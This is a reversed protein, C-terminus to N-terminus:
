RRPMNAVSVLRRLLHGVVIGTANHLVDTPRYEILPSYAEGIYEASEWAVGIVLLLVEKGPHYFSAIAYLCM